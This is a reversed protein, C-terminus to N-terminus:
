ELIAFAVASQRGHSLSLKVSNGGRRRAIEKARNSLHVVPEGLDNNLIEIDHWNMGRLGTGLVKLVAEKGAFRAAWSSYDGHTVTERERDTFLRELLRPQRECAQRFRSIEIIDTGPYM